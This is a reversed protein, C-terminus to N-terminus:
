PLVIETGPAFWLLQAYTGLLTPEQYDGPTREVLVMAGLQAAVSPYPKLIDVRPVLMLGQTLASGASDLIDLSWAATTYNFRWVLEVVTSGLKCRAHGEGEPTLPLAIFAM